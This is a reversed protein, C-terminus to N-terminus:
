KIEFKEYKTHRPTTVVVTYEGRPLNALNFRKEVKVTNKITEQYVLEGATDLIQVNMDAIRTSFWNVDVKKDLVRITPTLFVRQRKPNVELGDKTVKVPQLIEKMSTSVIFNYDGRPLDKLDFVKVIHSAGSIRRTLIKEGEADEITVRATGKLNDMELSIQRAYSIERIEITPLDAAAANLAVPQLTSLALFVLTIRTLITTITKM